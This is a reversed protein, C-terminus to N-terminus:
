SVWVVCLVVRRVVRSISAYMYIALLSGKGLNLSLLHHAVQNARRDLERYTLAQGLEDFTIAVQDPTRAAQAEFLREIRV